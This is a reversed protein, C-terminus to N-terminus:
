GVVRLLAAAAQDGIQELYVTGMGSYFRQPEESALLLLGFAVGDRAGPDRLPIQAISRVHEGREGLWAVAAQNIAPGCYPQASSAALGKIRSDVEQFETEDSGDGIGWLRLAVHPVAFLGGLHSYLVRMAGPLDNVGQLALGLRHVKGSIADNDEGFRILEALRGELEKVKDRLSGIQRETISITRGGHPNPIHLQALFEAYQEFFEPHCKLYSAVESAEM